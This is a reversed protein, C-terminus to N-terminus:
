RMLEDPLTWLLINRRGEGSTGAVAPTGYQMRSCQNPAKSTHAVTHSVITLSERIETASSLQVHKSERFVELGLCLAPTFFYLPCPSGKSLTVTDM